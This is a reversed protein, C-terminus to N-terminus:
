AARGEGLVVLRKLYAVSKKAKDCIGAVDQATLPM